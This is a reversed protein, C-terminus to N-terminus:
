LNISGDASEVLQLTLQGDTVIQKYHNGAEDAILPEEQLPYRIYTQETVEDWAPEDVVDYTISGGPYSRTEEHTIAPHHVTTKGVLYGKSLDIASEPIIQGKENYYTM